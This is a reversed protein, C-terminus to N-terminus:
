AFAFKDLIKESLSKHSLFYRFSYNAVIILLM